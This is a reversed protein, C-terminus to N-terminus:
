LHPSGAAQPRWLDDVSTEGGRTAAAQLTLDFAEARMRRDAYLLGYVGATFPYTLTATLTQGITILLAAGAAFAASGAGFFFLGMSGLQFPVSVVGGVVGILLQTLLVIGFVRWSDGKVLRWSRRM